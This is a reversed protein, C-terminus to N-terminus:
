TFKGLKFLSDFADDNYEGLGNNRFTHNITM